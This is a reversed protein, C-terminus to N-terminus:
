KLMNRYYYVDPQQGVEEEKNAERLLEHIEKRTLKKVWDSDNMPVPGHVNDQIPTEM